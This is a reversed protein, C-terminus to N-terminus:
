TASTKMLVFHPQPSDRRIYGYHEFNNFTRVSAPTWDESPNFTGVWTKSAYDWFSKDVLTCSQETNILPFLNSFALEQRAQRAEFSRHVTMYSKETYILPSLCGGSSIGKIGVGRSVDGSQLWGFIIYSQEEMRTLVAKRLQWEFTYHRRWLSNRTGAPATWLELMTGSLLITMHGPMSMLPQSELHRHSCTDRHEKLRSELWRITKGTHVRWCTCPVRNVVMSQGGIATFEEHQHAWLLHDQCDQLDHKHWLGQMGKNARALVKWM